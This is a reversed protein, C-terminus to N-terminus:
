KRGSSRHSHHSQRSQGSGSQHGSRGGGSSRHQHEHRRPQQSQSTGTQKKKAEKARQTESRKFGDTMDVIRPYVKDRFLFGEPKVIVHDYRPRSGGVNHYVFYFKTPFQSPCIGYSSRRSVESQQQISGLMHNREINKFKPCETIEKVNRILPELYTILLEDLETFKANDISFGM